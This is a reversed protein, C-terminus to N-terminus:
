KEMPDQVNKASVNAGREVLLKVTGDSISTCTHLATELPGGLHAFYYEPWDLTAGSDLLLKVTAYYDPQAKQGQGSCIHHKSCTCCNRGLGYGRYERELASYLAMDYNEAPRVNNSDLDLLVKTMAYYGGEAAYRLADRVCYVELNPIEVKMQTLHESLAEVIEHHGGRVAWRLPHDDWYHGPARNFPTSDTPVSEVCEIDANIELLLRTGDV